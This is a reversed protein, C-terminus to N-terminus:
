YTKYRDNEDEGISKLFNYYEKEGIENLSVEFSQWIPNLTEILEELKEDIESTDKKQWLYDKKLKQLTDIKQRILNAKDELNKTEKMKERLTEM